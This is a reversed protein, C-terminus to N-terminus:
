LFLKRVDSGNWCTFAPFCGGIDKIIYTSCVGRKQVFGSSINVLYSV